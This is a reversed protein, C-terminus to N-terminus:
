PERRKGGNNEERKGRGIFPFINNIYERVERMEESPPLAIAGTALVVLIFEFLLWLHPFTPATCHIGGSGGSGPKPGGCTTLITVGALYLLRSIVIIRNKRDRKKQRERKTEEPNNHDGERENSADDQGFEAIVDYPPPVLSSVSPNPQQSQSTSSSDSQPYYAPNRNPRADRRLNKASGDVDDNVNQEKPNIFPVTEEEHNDQSSM